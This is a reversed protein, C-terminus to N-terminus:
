QIGGNLVKEVADIADQPQFPKRLTVCHQDPGCCGDCDIDDFASMLIIQTEPRWAKLWRALDHGHMSPMRVDSLVVHFQEKEAISVAEHGNAATRVEFGARTFCLGLLTRIGSEDDVILIRRNGTNM